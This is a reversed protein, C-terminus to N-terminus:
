QRKLDCAVGYVLEQEFKSPKVATVIFFATKQYTVGHPKQRVLHHFGRIPEM